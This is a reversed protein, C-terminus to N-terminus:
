EASKDPVSAAALADLEKTTLWSERNAGPSVIRVIDKHTNRLNKLYLDSLNPHAEALRARADKVSSQAHNPKKRELEEAAFISMVREDSHTRGIPAILYLPSFAGVLAKGKMDGRNNIVLLETLFRSLWRELLSGARLAKEAERLTKWASSSDWSKPARGRTTIGLAHLAPCLARAELPPRSLPSSDPRAQEGLAVLGSKNFATNWVTALNHLFALLMGAHPADIHKLYFRELLDILAWAAASDGAKAGKILALQGRWDTLLDDRESEGDGQAPREQQACEEANPRLLLCDRVACMVLAEAPDALAAQADELVSLAAGADDAGVVNRFWEPLNLPGHLREWFLLQEATTPPELLLQHSSERIGTLDQLLTADVRFNVQM